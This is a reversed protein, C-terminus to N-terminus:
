LLGKEELYDRARKNAAENDLKQQHLLRQKQEAKLKNLSRNFNWKRLYNIM